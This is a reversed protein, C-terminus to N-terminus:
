QKHKPQLNLCPSNSLWLCLQSRSNVVGLDTCGPWQAGARSHWGGKIKQQKAKAHSGPQGWLATRGSSARECVELLQDPLTSTIHLGGTWPELIGPWQEIRGSGSVPYRSAIVSTLLRSCINLGPLGVQQPEGTRDKSLYPLSKGTNGRTWRGRISVQYRGTYSKSSQTEQVRGM